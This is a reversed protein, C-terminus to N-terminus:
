SSACVKIVKNFYVLYFETFWDAPHTNGHLVDIIFWDPCKHNLYSHKWIMLIPPVCVEASYFDSRRHLVSINHFCGLEGTQFEHLQGIYLSINSITMHTNFSMLMFRLCKIFISSSVNVKIRELHFIKKKPQKNFLHFLRTQLTKNYIVMSQEGFLTWWLYKYYLIWFVIINTKM